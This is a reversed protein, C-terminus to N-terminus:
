ERPEVPVAQGQEIRFTAGLRSSLSNRVDIGVARVESGEPVAGRTTVSWQRVQSDATRDLLAYGVARFPADGTRSGVVVCGVQGGFLGARTEGRFVDATGGLLEGDVVSAPANVGGQISLIWNKTPVPVLRREELLLLEALDRTPLEREVRPGALAEPLATIAEVREVDGRATRLAALGRDFDQAAVALLAGGLLPFAANGLRAALLGVIGLPLVFGGYLLEVREQPAFATDGAALFGYRQHHALVLLLGFAVLSWWVGESRSSSRPLLLLSPVLWSVLGFLFEDVTRDSFLDPWLGGTTTLLEGLSDGFAAGLGSFLGHEAVAFGSASYCSAVAAVNGCLLLAALWLIRRQAGAAAFLAPVLALFVVIGQGDCLCALVALLIAAVARWGSVAPDAAAEGRDSRAGSVLGLLALVFALPVLVRGVREGHLWNAGFDPSTVLLAVGLLVIAAGHDSSAFGLTANAARRVLRALALALLGALVANLLPTWAVTVGPIQLLATHLTRSVLHAPEGEFMLVGTFDWQPLWEGRAARAAMSEPLRAGLTSWLLAAAAVVAALVWLVIRLVIM